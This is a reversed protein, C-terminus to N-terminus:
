SRLMIPGSARGDDPSDAPKATRIVVPMLQEVLTGANAVSSGAPLHRLVERALRLRDGDMYDHPAATRIFGGGGHDLGRLALADHIARLTATRVDNM